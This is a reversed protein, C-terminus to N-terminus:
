RSYHYITQLNSRAPRKFHAGSIKYNLSKIASTSNITGNNGSAAISVDELAFPNVMSVEGDTYTIRVADGPNMFSIGDVCSWPVQLTSSGSTIYVSDGLVSFGIAALPVGLCTSNSQYIFMKNQAYLACCTILLAIFVNEENAEIRYFDTQLTIHRVTSCNGARHITLLSFFHYFHEM